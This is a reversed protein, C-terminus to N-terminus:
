AAASARAFRRMLLAVTYAVIGGVAYWLLDHWAFTSGLVWRLPPFAATLTGPLPTLQLLEVTCSVAVAIGAAVAPLATPWLMLVILAVLLTYAVGGIADGFVPWSRGVVGVGVTLAAAVAALIRVGAPDVRVRDDREM